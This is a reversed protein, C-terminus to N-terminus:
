RHRKRNVVRVPDKQRYKELFEKDTQKAVKRYESLFFQDGHERKLRKQLMVEEMPRVANCNLTFIEKYLAPVSKGLSSYEEAADSRRKEHGALLEKQKNISKQEQEQLRSATRLANIDPFGNRKLIGDVYAAREASKKRECSIQDQLEKRQHMGAGRLSETLAAILAASKENLALMADVLQLSSQIDAEKQEAANVSVALLRELATASCGSYIAVARLREM